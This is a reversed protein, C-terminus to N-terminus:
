PSHLMSTSCRRTDQLLRRTRRRPPVPPAHAQDRLVHGVREDDRGIAPAHADDRHSLHCAVAVTLRLVRTEGAELEVLDPPLPLHLPLPRSPRLRQRLPRHLERLRHDGLRTASHTHAHSAPPTMKRCREGIALQTHTHTLDTRHTHTRTNDNEAHPGTDSSSHTPDPERTHGTRPQSKTVGKLYFSAAAGAEHRGTRRPTRAPPPCLVDRLVSAAQSSRETTSEIECVEGRATHTRLESTHACFEQESSEVVQLDPCSVGGEQTCSM